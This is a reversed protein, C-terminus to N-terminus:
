TEGPRTSLAKKEKPDCRIPEAAGLSTQGTSAKRLRSVVDAGTAVASDRAPDCSPDAAEGGVTSPVAKATSRLGAGAPKVEAVTGARAGADRAPAAEARPSTCACLLALPALLSLRRAVSHM